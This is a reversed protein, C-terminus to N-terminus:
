AVVVIQALDGLRVGSRAGEPQDRVPDAGRVQQGTM